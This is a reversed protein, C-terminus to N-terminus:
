NCKLGRISPGRQGAIAVTRRAAGTAADFLRLEDGGGSATAAIVLTGDGTVDLGHIGAHFQELPVAEFHAYPQFRLAYIEYASGRAFYGVGDRAAVISTVSSALRRGVPRAAILEAFGAYRALFPRPEDITFTRRPQVLLEDGMSTVAECAGPALRTKGDAISIEVVGRDRQCAYLRDGIWGLSASADQLEVDLAPGVCAAGSDLGITVVHVGGHGVLAMCRHAEGLVQACPGSAPAGHPPKPPKRPPRVAAALLGCSLLAALASVRAGTMTREGTM